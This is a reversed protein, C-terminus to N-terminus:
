PTESTNGTLAWVVQPRGRGARVRDGTDRVQESDKLETFRPWIFELPMGISHAVDRATARGGFKELHLLILKRMGARRQAPTFNM